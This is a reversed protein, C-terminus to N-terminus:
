RRGKAKASFSDSVILLDGLRLLIIPQGVPELDDLTILLIAQTTKREVVNQSICACILVGAM